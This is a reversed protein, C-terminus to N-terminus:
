VRGREIDNRVADVIDKAEKLGLDFATRILKICQITKYTYMGWSTNDVGVARTDMLYQFATEKKRWEGTLMECEATVEDAYKALITAEAIARSNAYSM